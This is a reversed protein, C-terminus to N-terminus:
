QAAEESSPAGSEDGWEKLQEQRAILAEKLSKYENPPVAKRERLDKLVLILSEVDEQTAAVEVRAIFAAGESVRVGTGDGAAWQALTQGTQEDLPRASDFLSRFQEPKKIMMREGVEDSQWTPVGGANPLLLCNATMEFIFEDGAIPMFGMPKVSEIREGRGKAADKEAKTALKIKEKARFCFIFNANMQLISNILRRRDTKPKGWALMKNSDKKWQEANPGGSLRDVEAMHTELMGGPGEHEHSMSDVVIVGAGKKVCHEIAALYDLSGFPAGFELHRFKFRDAYHLARRAETDVVYIEGGSVKQIGTALRLASFTKGGGSPGMLGVLLPVKERTAPKDDFTRM